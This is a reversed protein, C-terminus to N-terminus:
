GKGQLNPCKSRTKADCCAYITILMGDATKTITRTTFVEANEGGLIEFGTNKGGCHPCAQYFSDNIAAGLARM